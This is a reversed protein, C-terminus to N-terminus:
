LVIKRKKKPIRIAFACYRNLCSFLISYICYMPILGLASTKTQLLLLLRGNLNYVVCEYAEM